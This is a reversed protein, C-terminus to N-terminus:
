VFFSHLINNELFSHSEIDSHLTIGKREPGMQNSDPNIIIDLMTHKGVATHDTDKVDKKCKIVIAMHSHGKQFENLIDYLPWNEYVRDYFIYLSV